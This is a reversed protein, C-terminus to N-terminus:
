LMADMRMFIFKTCVFVFGKKEEKKVEFVCFEEGCSVDHRGKGCGDRKQQEQQHRRRGGGGGGANHARDLVVLFLAEDLVRCIGARHLM